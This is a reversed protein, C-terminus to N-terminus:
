RPADLADSVWQAYAARTEADVAGWQDGAPPAAVRYEMEGDVELFYVDVIRRDEASTEAHYFEADYLEARAGKVDGDMLVEVSHTHQRDLASGLREQTEAMLREVDERFGNQYSEDMTVTKRGVKILRPPSGGHMAPVQSRQPVTDSFRTEQSTQPARTQGSCM